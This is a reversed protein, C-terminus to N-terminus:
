SFTPFSNVTVYLAITFSFATTVSFLWAYRSYPSLGSFTTLVVGLSTFLGVYGNCILFVSLPSVLM